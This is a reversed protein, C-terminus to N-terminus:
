LLILYFLQLFHMFLELGVNGCRLRGAVSIDAQNRQGNKLIGSSQVNTKIVVGYFKEM